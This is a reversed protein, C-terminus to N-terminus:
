PARHILYLRAFRSLRLHSLLVIFEFPNLNRFGVGVVASHDRLDQRGNTQASVAALSEIILHDSGVSTPDILPVDIPLSNSESVSTLNWLFEDGIKTLEHLLM